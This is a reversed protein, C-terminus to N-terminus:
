EAASKSTSCSSVTEMPTPVSQGGTGQKKPETQGCCTQAGGLMEAVQHQVEELQTLQLGPDCVLFTEGTKRHEYVRVLLGAETKRVDREVLIRKRELMVALIYIVPVKEETQNTILRRLLEEVTEKRVPETTKPPPERYLGRWKSHAAYTVAVQAWCASCLDARRYGQQDFTLVSHYVQRDQFRTGCRHCTSSRPKIDWDTAM